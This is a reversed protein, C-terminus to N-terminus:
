ENYSNECKRFTYVSFEWEDSVFAIPFSLSCRKTKMESEPLEYNNYKVMSNTWSLNSYTFRFLCTFLDMGEGCMTPCARTYALPKCHPGFALGLLILM